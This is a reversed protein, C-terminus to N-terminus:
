RRWCLIFVKYKIINVWAANNHLTLLINNYQKTQKNQKCSSKHNHKKFHGSCQSLVTTNNNNNIIFIFIHIPHCSTMCDWFPPSGSRTSYFKKELIDPTKMINRLFNNTEKNKVSHVKLIVESMISWSPFVPLFFM